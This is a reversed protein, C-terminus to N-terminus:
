PSRSGSRRVEWRPCEKLGRYPVVPGPSSKATAERCRLAIHKPRYVYGLRQTRLPSPWGSRKLGFTGVGGNGIKFIRESM